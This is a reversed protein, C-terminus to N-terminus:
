TNYVKKAPIEEKVDDVTSPLEDMDNSNDVDGFDVADQDEVHVNSSFYSNLADQDTSLYASSTYQKPLRNWNWQPYLESICFLAQMAFEMGDLRSLHM